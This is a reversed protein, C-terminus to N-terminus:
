KAPIQVAKSGPKWGQPTQEAATPRDTYWQSTLKTWTGDAIVADLGANLADLLPQNDKNVAYATFNQTNVVKEAIKTGDGDKVQGSAQQSPAVWADIQGNKVNGYVTNYDPFRVPELKLTNTVYDDQVTGQVVGIRVGEKLDAFGTVKADNKTVVAMYGFDYGNTFGVTKRRADTTSISSSGVDFQKNAVQSLLASFDTSAFEVKLGLKDGIARLLENDYGTFKGSPDIFINPPADSLTGVRLTGDTILGLKSKDIKDLATVDATTYKDLTQQDSGALADTPSGSPQSTGGGCAALSIVLAAAVPAASLWKLAKFKM